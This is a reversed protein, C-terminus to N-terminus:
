QSEWVYAHESNYVCVLRRGGDAQLNIRIHLRNAPLLHQVSEAWEIVVVASPDEYVAQLEHEMIGAEAALRYFDFHHLKGVKTQYIKNLAFTPSAVRDQSGMGQALGRVFTTKGGGLDSVLEVTEGGKLQRGIARAIAETQEPSSSFFVKKSSGM